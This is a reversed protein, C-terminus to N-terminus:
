SAEARAWWALTTAVAVAAVVPALALQFATVDAAADPGGMGMWLSPAAYPFWGGAGTATLLQTLVVIVILTVFGALYGRRWSAVLALPGALVASLLGAATAQSAITLAAATLPLRLCLGTLLTLTVTAIVTAVAWAALVLFKASALSRRPTAIAFLAPVADDVFERGFSWSVAIGATMVIAVTLVQGAVGLLGALDFDTVLTAAKAVSPSDGGRRALIFFLTSIGPVGAVVAVAGWRFVAARSAKLMEFELAANM